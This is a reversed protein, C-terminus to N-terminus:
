PATALCVAAQQSARERTLMGMGLRVGYYVEHMVLGTRAAHYLLRDTTRDEYEAGLVEDLPCPPEFGRICRVYQSVEEDVLEYAQHDSTGLDPWRCGKGAGLVSCDSLVLRKILWSVTENFVNGQGLGGQTSHIDAYPPFTLM